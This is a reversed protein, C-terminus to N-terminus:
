AEACGKSCDRGERRLAQLYVGFTLLTFAYQVLWLMVSLAFNVCLGVVHKFTLWTTGLYGKM